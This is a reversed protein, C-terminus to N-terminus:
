QVKGLVAAEGEKMAVYMEIFDAAEGATQANGCGVSSFLEYTEPYTSEGSFPVPNHREFGFHKTVPGESLRVPMQSGVMRVSSNVLEFTRQLDPRCAYHGLACAPTGCNKGFERMTFATPDPSERLARAVNLLRQKHRANM